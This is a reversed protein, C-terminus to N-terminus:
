ADRIFAVIEPSQGELVDAEEIVLMGARGRNEPRRLQRLIECLILQTTLTSLVPDRALNFKPSSM